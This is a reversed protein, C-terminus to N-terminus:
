PTDVKQLNVQVTATANARVIVRREISRYGAASVRLIQELRGDVISAPIPVTFTRGPSGVQEGLLLDADIAPSVLVAVRGPKWPLQIKLEDLRHSPAVIVRKPFCCSDNRFVLTSSRGGPLTVRSLAPGYPGLLRGNLWIELAKPQLVAIRVTRPPIPIARPMGSDVARRVTRRRRAVLASPSGDASQRQGLDASSQPVRADASAAATGDVSALAVRATSRGAANRSATPTSPWRLSIWYAGLGVTLAAAILLAVRNLRRRRSIRDLLRLVEENSPDLSLVRDFLQLAINIRGGTLALRGRSTLEAVARAQFDRSYSEPDAFYARLERRPDEVGADALYDLLGQRLDAISAFRDDPERALARGIMTALREGVVTNVLNAPVCRGDAIRKLVEHPNKGRFPLQGTALQYALTGVSFVDTRFDLPRGQILEPAMYAPSGLLQGTVTLKQVDVMQAIGFDTLKVRGDSRIMINEPKIDRHIIGLGHAHDLANCVEVTIMAALEPHSLPHRSLFAKLTEGHIFETVIYSESSELGSYDYIELINDHRLKAVAHAERQFRQKSEEQDALHPHLIKVAVERNLSTDLARYVM